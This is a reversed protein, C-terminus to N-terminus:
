STSESLKQTKAKHVISESGELFLGNRPSGLLGSLRGRFHLNKSTNKSVRKQLTFLARLAVM